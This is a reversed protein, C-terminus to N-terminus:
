ESDPEVLTVGDEQKFSWRRTGALLRVPYYSAVGLPNGSGDVAVWIVKGAKSAGRHGSATRAPVHEPVLGHAKLRRIIVESDSRSPV